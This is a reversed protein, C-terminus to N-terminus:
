KLEIRTVGQSGTITIKFRYTLKGDKAEADYTGSPLDFTIRGYRDTRAEILPKQKRGLVRVHAYAVRYSGAPSVRVLEFADGFLLNATASAMLLVNPMTSRRLTEYSDPKLLGDSLGTGSELLSTNERREMPTGSANVHLRKGTSRRLTDGNGHGITWHSAVEGRLQKSSSAYAKDGVHRSAIALRTVPLHM